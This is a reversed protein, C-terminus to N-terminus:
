LESLGMERRSVNFVAKTLEYLKAAFEDVPVPCDADIWAGICNMTGYTAFCITFPVNAVDKKFQYIKDLEEMLVQSFSMRFAECQSRFFLAKFAKRNEKYFECSGSLAELPTDSQLHSVNEKMADVFSNQLDELLEEVSEYHEYFTSRGVGARKSLANIRIKQLPIELMMDVLANQLKKKTTRSRLNNPVNM